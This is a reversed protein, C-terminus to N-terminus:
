AARRPFRVPLHKIGNIFASRLREAPGTQEMDPVRALLEEFMVRIELRALNAGLCFHPGGTGFGIHMNPTRGVDFRHPEPFVEPDRNAAIYWLTLKEGERLTRGHIEVDRTATRRFYMVPTIYRIMEEVGTVLLEPRELLREWQARNEFFTLMAGSILNRTTENGAVTLLLLFADIEVNTLQQGEVEAELLASILDERREARRQGALWEWYMYMEMAAQTAKEISNGYEPDQNGVMTNSWDFVRQRDEAPVGVMEAIVRLPLDAAIQTVFDCDGCAIANDILDRAIERIHDELAAVRRPTFGKNVLSRLQTHKPPDMNLMMLEMGGVPEEVLVGRASSFTSWDRGAAVLDHYRVLAWFPNGEYDHHLSLPEHERLWDFGDHPVAAVFADPDYLDLQTAKM